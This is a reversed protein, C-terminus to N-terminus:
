RRELSSSGSTGTRRSTPVKSGKSSACDRETPASEKRLFGNSECSSRCRTSSSSAARDPRAGGAAAAAREGGGGAGGIVSQPLKWTSGAGTGGVASGNGAGTGNWWSSWGNGGNPSLENSSGDNTRSSSGAPPSRRTSSLPSRGAPSGKNSSSPVASRLSPLSM